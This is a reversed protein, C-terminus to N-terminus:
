ETSIEKEVSHKDVFKHGKDVDNGSVIEKYKKNKKKKNEGNVVQTKWHNERRTVDILVELKELHTKTRINACLSLRAGM